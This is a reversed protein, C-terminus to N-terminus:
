AAKTCGCIDGIQKCYCKDMGCVCPEAAEDPVTVAETVAKTATDAAKKAAPKEARSMRLMSKGLKAFAKTFTMRAIERSATLNYEGALSGSVLVQVKGVVQGELVPAELDPVLMIEQTLMNEQGKEIVLKAPESYTPMVSDEVGRLVSVPTLEADIKPPSVAQYNAFGFDLLGRASAFRDNSTPCGMVVSILSLGDRTATASLCSGAGDTTGTKLGTAGNYFRM